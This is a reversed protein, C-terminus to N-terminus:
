FESNERIDLMIIHGNFSSKIGSLWLKVDLMETKNKEKHNRDKSFEGVTWMYQRVLKEM